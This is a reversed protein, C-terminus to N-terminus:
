DARRSPRRGQGRKTIPGPLHAHSSGNVVKAVRSQGSGDGWLISSIQSQSFRGTHYMWRVCVVDDDSLPGLVSTRGAEIMDGVNQQQTGVELHDVRVCSRTNCKHRVVLGDPIEGHHLRYAIRHAYQHGVMGYGSTRPGTWFCHATPDARDYPATMSHFMAIEDRDAM